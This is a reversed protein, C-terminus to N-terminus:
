ETFNMKNGNDTIDPLDAYPSRIGRKKAEEKATASHITANEFNKQAAYTFGNMKDSSNIFAPAVPEDSLKPKKKGCEPCEVNAFKLDYEKFSCISDFRHQCKKRGCVLSYNPM